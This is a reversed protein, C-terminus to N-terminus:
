KGRKREVFSVINAVSDLNEPKMEDDDVKLAYTEELHMILELIGTSDVVGNQMLSDTDNLKSEDNTFLYNTLIFQKVENRISM